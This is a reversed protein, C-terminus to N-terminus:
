HRAGIQRQLDCAAQVEKGMWSRKPSPVYEPTDPRRPLEGDARLLPSCVAIVRYPAGAQRASYEIRAGNVVASDVDIHVIGVRDDEFARVWRHAFSPMSALIVCSLVVGSECRSQM